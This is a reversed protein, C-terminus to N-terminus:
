NSRGKMIHVKKQDNNQRERKAALESTRQQKAYRPKAENLWSTHLSGRWVNRSCKGTETNSVCNDAYLREEEWPLVGYESTIVKPNVDSLDAKKLDFEIQLTLTIKRPREDM